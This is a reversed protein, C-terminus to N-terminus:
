VLRVIAYVLLPFTSMWSSAKSLNLDGSGIVNEDPASNPKPCHTMIRLHQSFLMDVQLPTIQQDWSGYAGKGNTGSRWVHPWAVCGSSPLTVWDTKEEWGANDVQMAESLMKGTHDGM